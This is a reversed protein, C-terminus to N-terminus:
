REPDEERSWSPYFFGFVPEVIERIQKIEGPELAGNWHSALARADRELDHVRNARATM